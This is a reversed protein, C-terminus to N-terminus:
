LKIGMAQAAALVGSSHCVSSPKSGTVACISASIYNAETIIAQTVPVGAYKLNAAITERTLPSALSGPDYESGTIFYRNAVDMFPIGGGQDYSSALTQIDIPPTMFTKSNRDLTEYARFVFYKSTYTVTDTPKKGVFSFTPTSPAVDTSSSLMNYLTNFHGFRSLAVIIGWRTAACYPCYEAGLYVIGPLKKGGVTFTLPPQGSASSLPQVGISPSTVGVTNFVSAPVSQVEQLIAPSTPGFYTQQPGSSSLSTALVIALVVVVVTGIAIWMVSGNSKRRRNVM